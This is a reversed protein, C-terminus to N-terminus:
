ERFEQGSIKQSMEIHEDVVYVTHKAEVVCLHHLRLHFPLMDGQNRRGM